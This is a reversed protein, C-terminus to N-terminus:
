LRSLDFLALVTTGARAVLEPVILQAREGEPRQDVM